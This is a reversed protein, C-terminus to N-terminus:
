AVRTGCQTCFKAAADHAAGCAACYGAAGARADPTQPSSAAPPPGVARRPSAKPAEEDVQFAPSPDPATRDIEGILAKARLRLRGSLDAYDADSVKKMAHDFELEKISRLVLMKERELGERKRPSLPRVAGSGRGDWFGMLAYHVTAAVLGAGLIAASLLLLAAPHTEHSAVVAWSAAGMALLLYFHWPELGLDRRVAPRDTSSGSNMTSDTM